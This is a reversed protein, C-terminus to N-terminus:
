AGTSRLILDVTQEPQDWHPFHGCRDFWHLEADPFRHLAPTAQGPLTVRDQRGWGIVVKGRQAGRTIGEQSPGHALADFAPWISPATKFGRLEHLVLDADLSWPAASFQLLLATRGAASSTLTPLAPQIGRVLRISTGISVAFARKQLDTWFGGPDLAVATGAHGRRVMELVMRAGMSSGVVDVDGLNREAIFREVADTLTGIGVEGRLPPSEGFGPLDVAIVERHASLGPVVPRWNGISSGLGHVLLLPKGNGTRVFNM